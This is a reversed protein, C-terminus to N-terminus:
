LLNSICLILLDMSILVQCIQCKECEPNHSQWYRVFYPGCYCDQRPPDLEFHVASYLRGVLM